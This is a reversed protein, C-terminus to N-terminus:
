EYQLKQQKPEARVNSQDLETGGGLTPHKPAAIQVVRADLAFNLDISANLHDHSDSCYLVYLANM